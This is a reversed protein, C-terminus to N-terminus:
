FAFQFLVDVRNASAHAGDFNRRQGHLYEAGVQLRPTIDWFINAAFYHGMRYDDGNLSAYDSFYRAHGYAACAYVNYLFNYKAGFQLGVSWPAYMRGPTAAKAVLDYNGISLDGLYSSYGRGGNIETYLALRNVPRLNASIQAGWGILNRNQGTVLDRYPLTRLVGSLRIHQDHTWSYQGFAVYDPMWDNLKKTDTGDADVQSSPMEVSAAMSWHSDFSHMWRVLMATKSAKGNPGAGDITPVEAAPDAFSTTAYGITWDHVTVYAKKLKFLVNGPGSFDCQIYASFDRCVSNFGIVRFFLSTGGPTGGIRRRLEPNAPVPILYPCFGNADIAGDFDAWGRMRVAGGIGMALSADRSMLLFYPALPDKFHHFQDVYFMTIMKMVSDEHTTQGEGTFIVKHNQKMKEVNIEEATMTAMSTDIAPKDQAIAGSAIVALLGSIFIKRM